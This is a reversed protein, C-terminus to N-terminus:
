KLSGADWYMPVLVWCLCVGREGQPRRKKGEWKRGWVWTSFSSTCPPPKVEAHTHTHIYSQFQFTIVFSHLTNSLIIIPQGKSLMEGLFGPSCPLWFPGGNQAMQYTKCPHLPTLLDKMNCGSGVTDFVHPFGTHLMHTSIADLSWHLCTKMAYTSYTSNGKM